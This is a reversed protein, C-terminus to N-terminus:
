EAEEDEGALWPGTESNRSELFYFESVRFPPILLRPPPYIANNPFRSVLQSTLLSGLRLGRGNRKRDGCRM